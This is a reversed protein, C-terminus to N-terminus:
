QHYGTPVSEKTLLASPGNSIKSHERFRWPSALGGYWQLMIQSSCYQSCRVYVEVVLVCVKGDQNCWVEVLPRKVKATPPM